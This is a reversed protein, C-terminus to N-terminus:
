ASNCNCRPLSPLESLRALWDFSHNHCCERAMNILSHTLSRTLSHTLMSGVHVQIQRAFVEVGTMCEAYPPTKTIVELACMGYAYVDTKVDNANQKWIEPPMFGATGDFSSPSSNQIFTGLELAGIKLIATNAQMFIHECKLDFHIFPSLTGDEDHVQTHLYHMGSLIQLLWGKIVLAKM